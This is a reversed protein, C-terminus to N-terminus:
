RALEAYFKAKHDDLMGAGEIAAFAIAEGGRENAGRERIRALRIRQDM